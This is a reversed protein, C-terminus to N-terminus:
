RAPNFREKLSVPDSRTITWTELGHWRTFNWLAAEIQAIDAENLAAGPELFFGKIEMYKEKRWAKVDMRGILQGNHLIPLCFYGYVRKAKPTYSELRYYFNFVEELRDRWTLLPNFPCLFTTLTAPLKDNLAQELLPRNDPHMYLPKELGDFQLPIWLGNAAEEAFRKAPYAANNIYYHKQAWTPAAVGLTKVAKHILYTYAEEASTAQSDQWTPHVRERLDYYRRFKKRYAVMLEMKYWLVQMILKEPKNGGWSNRYSDPMERASFDSSCKAGDQQIIELVEQEIGPFHDLVQPRWINKPREGALNLGRYYKFEEIPIFSLVHAHFEFLTGESLLEDLWVPDYDGLHNWLILYPARAVAQMTDIQLYGMKQIFQRVSEKTAKHQPPNLLGMSALQIKQLQTQTIKIPANPM